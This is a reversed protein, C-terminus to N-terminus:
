WEEDEDEDSDDSDGMNGKRQSLAAALASALGGEVAAPEEERVVPSAPTPDVKKLPKGAAIADLLGARNAAPPPPPPPSRFLM